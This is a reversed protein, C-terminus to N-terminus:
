PMERGELVRLRALRARRLWVDRVANYLCADADPGGVTRRPSCAGELVQGCWRRFGGNAAVAYAMVSVGEIKSASGFCGNCDVRETGQSWLAFVKRVFGCLQVQRESRSELRVSWGDFGFREVVDVAQVPSSFWFLVEFHGWKGESVVSSGVARALWAKRFGNRRSHFRQEIRQMSHAFQVESYGRSSEVSDLTYVLQICRFRTFSM